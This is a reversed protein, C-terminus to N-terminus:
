VGRDVVEGCGLVGWKEGGAEEGRGGDGEELVYQM